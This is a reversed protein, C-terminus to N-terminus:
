LEFQAAASDAAGAAIAAASRAGAFSRLLAVVQEPHTHLLNHEAGAIETRLCPGVLECVRAIDRQPIVTDDAGSIVLVDRRLERVAAYRTSQDGLTDARIM